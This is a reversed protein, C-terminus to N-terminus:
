QTGNYYDATSFHECRRCLQGEADIWLIEATVADVVGPDALFPLSAVFPRLPRAVCLAAPLPARASLAMRVAVASCLWAGDVSRWAGVCIVGHDRLFARVQAETLPGSGSSKLLAALWDATFSTPRRGHQLLQTNHPQTHTHQARPCAYSHPPSRPFLKRAAFRVCACLLFFFFVCVCVCLCCRVQAIAEGRDKYLLDQLSVVDVRKKAAFQVYHEQRDKHPLKGDPDFLARPSHAGHPPTARWYQGHTQDATVQAFAHRFFFAFAFRCCCVTLCSCLCWRARRCASRVVCPRFACALLCLLCARLALLM